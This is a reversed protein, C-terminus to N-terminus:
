QPIFTMPISVVAGGDGPPSFQAGRVVRTVCAVMSSSLGGNAAQVSSVEGNSAIKATVRVSGRMTPDEDLAHKYCTRLPGKLGAVTRGADPLTGAHVDPPAVSTTGIPKKPGVVNGSDDAHLDRKTDAPGELVNRQAGPRVPGVSAPLNLLPNGTTRAGGPDRAIDDLIGTPVPGRAIVRDTAGGTTGGITLLMRGGERSLERAIEAARTNSPGADDAHHPPRPGPEPKGPGHPTIRGPDRPTPAVTGALAESEPHTDLPPPPGLTRFTDVMQTLRAGDDEIVTDAFDSYAAGVAGFHVLFSFAAVCTTRWDFGDFAGQKVALPLQPRAVAVAPEVFQFLVVADGLTIRGRAADDLAIPARGRQGRVEAVEGGLAVRGSMGPGLHLQYGARSWELLRVGSTLGAIVFTNRETPGVTLHEGLPLVREDLIKGGRVLAARLARSATPRAVARMVATMQGPKSSPQGLPTM